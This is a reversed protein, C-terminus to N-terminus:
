AIVCAPAFGIGSSAFNHGLYGSPNVSRVYYASGSSPTRLWWYQASGSTNYKILAPYTQGDKTVTGILNYYYEYQTGEADNNYPSFTCGAVEKYSLLFFKDTVTGTSNGSGGNDWKQTYFGKEVPVVVSLFEPDLGYQWNRATNLNARDFVTQAKWWDKLAADTNMWQRVQSTPYYNSGYRCRQLCNVQNTSIMNFDDVSGSTSIDTATAECLLTGSASDEGTIAYTTGSTSSSSPYVTVGSPQQNYSWNFMIQSGAAIAATATFTYYNYTHYNKEYSSSIGVTYDGAPLATGVYILAEPPDFAGKQVTNHMQLTISHERGAPIDGDHDIGIVDFLLEAATEHIVIEDGAKATGTYTIGYEAGLEASSAGVASGNFYWEIGDYTFVYDKGNEVTGIKTIFAEEDVTVATVGATTGETQNGFHTVVSTERGVTIQSNTDLYQTALGLRVIERLKTPSNIDITGSSSGMKASIIKLTESNTQTATTLAQIATNMEQTTTALGQLTTDVGETATIIGQGTTNSIIDIGSDAM